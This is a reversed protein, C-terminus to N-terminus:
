RRPELNLRRARGFDHLAPLISVNGVGNVRPIFTGPRRIRAHADGASTEQLPPPERNLDDVPLSDIDTFALDPEGHNLRDSGERRRDCRPRSRAPSM